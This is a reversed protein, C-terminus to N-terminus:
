IFYLVIKRVDINNVVVVINMIRLEVDEGFLEFFIVKVVMKIDDIVDYVIFIVIYVYQDGFMM